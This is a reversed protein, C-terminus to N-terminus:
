VEGESFELSFRLLDIYNQLFKRRFYSVLHPRLVFARVENLRSLNMLVFSLGDVDFAELKCENVGGDGHREYGDVAREVTDHDEVKADGFGEEGQKSNKRIQKGRNM